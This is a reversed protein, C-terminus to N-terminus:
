ALIDEWIQDATLVRADIAEPMLDWNVPDLIMYKTRLQVNLKWSQLVMQKVCKPLADFQADQHTKLACWSTNPQRVKKRLISLERLRMIRDDDYPMMSRHDLLGEFHRGLIGKIHNLGSWTEYPTGHHLKHCYLIYPVAANFTDHTGGYLFKSYSHDTIIRIFCKIEDTPFTEGDEATILEKDLSTKMMKLDIAAIFKSMYHMNDVPILKAPTGSELLSLIEKYSIELKNM